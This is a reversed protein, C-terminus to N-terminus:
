KRWHKTMDVKHPKVTIDKLERPGRARIVDAAVAVKEDIESAKDAVIVATNVLFAPKTFFVVVAAIMVLLVIVSM